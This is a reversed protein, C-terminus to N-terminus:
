LLLITITGNSTGSQTSVVATNSESSTNGAADFAKVTFSYSTGESLTNVTFSTSTLTAILATDQYINYGAVAINDTATSWSLDTSTETTNLATVNSPATPAITDPTPLTTIYVTTSQASFNGTADAASVSYNYATDPTLGSVAYNTNNSNAIITNNQYITYSTVATDDTASSWTLDVTTQTINSTALNNPKSPATTDSSDITHNGIGSFTDEPLVVWETNTYFTNPSVVATKRQLTSNQAFNASSTTDGLLDILADNKFLGIADNGNFSLVSNNTLNAASLLTANASGHVIVYVQGNGLTGSLALTSTFSGAGNTAKKLSYNSLDVTTGTFNAIEIAKNNSSGEIYESILLATTAGNGVGGTNTTIVATNSALSTNVAADYAKVSFSYSTGPVLNTVTFNTNSTTGIQTNGKFLTYGAVAVNDTAASWSLDVTTQTSNSASLNSPASPATTDNTSNGTGFKDEAQQGGWIQTAFAPNDIFPNRNGQINELIPNRQLELNSVPDEANWDLFLNIMNADSANVTGVAVGTPPTQDAYHIYMYLMMRAVDGKWEDGPYWNGAATIGSNGSGDEFKRNSRSSNRQADCPRLNHADAGPGSTGLNPNALSKSYVHERNWVGSGGGNLDKERTRDNTIDSDADNWGYILVVNAPNTPDLDTQKLADWVGPTYSIYTTHTSIVKTALEEKLAPGSKNLDVDNYYPPIQCFVSLSILVFFLPLLKKM